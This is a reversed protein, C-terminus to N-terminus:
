KFKSLLAQDEAKGWRPYNGNTPTNLKSLSEGALKKALDKDGGWMKPTYYKLWASVYLARPNQADLATAQKLFQDSLMGYKRGYTMPNIFVKTRYIMSLVTYVEAVEKQQSGTDLLSLAKKAQEEGRNAYSEIKDGDDQLLFGIKANCLAAYYPALWTPQESIGTFTKELQEYDKVTQAQDLKAIAASLGGSQAYTSYQLLVASFLTFLLKKM